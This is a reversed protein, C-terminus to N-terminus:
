RWRNSNSLMKVLPLNKDKESYKWMLSMGRWGDWHTRLHYRLNEEFKWWNNNPILFHFIWFKVNSFFKTWWIYAKITHYCKPSFEFLWNQPMNPSGYQLSYWNWLLWIWVIEEIWIINSIDLRLNINQLYALMWLLLLLIIKKKILNM